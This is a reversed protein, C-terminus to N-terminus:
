EFFKEYVRKLYVVSGIVQINDHHLDYIEVPYEHNHPQLILQYNKFVVKRIVLDSDNIHLATLDGSKLFTNLKIVVHDGTRLTPAMSEDSIELAFASGWQTLLKGPLSIVHDTKENSFIPRDYRINKFVSLSITGGRELEPDDIIETAYMSTDRGMLWEPNVDFYSAMARVTTIKPVMEGRTYRSISPPSLNFKKSMSYTTEGFNTMLMKLRKGFVAKNVNMKTSM